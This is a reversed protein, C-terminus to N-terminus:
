SRYLVMVRYELTEAARMQAKLIDTWFVDTSGAWSDATYKKKFM